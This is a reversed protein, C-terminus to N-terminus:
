EDWKLEGSVNKLYDIAADCTQPVPRNMIDQIQEEHERELEGIEGELEAIREKARKGAELADNIAQNQQEIAGNLVNVNEKCTDLRKQLVTLQQEKTEITNHLGRIYFFSFGMVLFVAVAKWHELLLELLKAPQLFVKLFPLFQLM